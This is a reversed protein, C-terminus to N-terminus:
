TKFPMEHEVYRQDRMKRIRLFKEPGESSEKEYITIEGDFLGVVAQVEESSHMFPNIVALTTFEKSKLEPILGSLWKRTQVAHHQLLVDSVIEICARRPKSPRGDLKRFAGTLAINIDNLNEIGKLAIVNPLNKAITEAQPNCVFLYFSSPYREALTKAQDPNATVLITVEGNQAGAELFRRLIMEREDCSPAALMVAYNKPIGGFLLDNLGEFGTDVRDSLVSKPVQVKMPESLAAFFKQMRRYTELYQLGWKTAQYKKRDTVDVERVFGHSVLLELCKKARDVPLNSAYSVRTLSCVGKKMIVDVIDAYIDYKTRRGESM